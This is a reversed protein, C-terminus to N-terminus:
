KRLALIVRPCITLLKSQYVKPIVVRTGCLLCGHGVSLFDAVKRFEEAKKTSAKRQPWGEQIYRIVGSTTSDKASEKLLVGPDTPKLQSSIIKISDVVYMDDEEKKEHDFNADPGSPLRSLVDANGHASTNRYEISYNYQNLILAWRVLRNAALAPTAKTPSFVSLLPKHDTVLIFKQGYLYRHFKRLAFVIALAEKQIQSYKRQSKM